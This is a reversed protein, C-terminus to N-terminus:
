DERGEHKSASGSLVSTDGGPITGCLHLRLAEMEHSRKCSCAELPMHLGQCSGAMSPLPPEQGPQASIPPCATVTTNTGERSSVQTAQRHNTGTRIYRILDALLFKVEGRGVRLLPTPCQQAGAQGKSVSLSPVHGPQEWPVKLLSVLTSHKSQFSAQRLQQCHSHSTFGGAPLHQVDTRALHRSSSSLTHTVLLLEKGEAATGM